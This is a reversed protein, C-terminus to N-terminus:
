RRQRSLCEPIPRVSIATRSLSIVADAYVMEGVRAFSVANATEPAIPASAPPRRTGAVPEKRDRANWGLSDSRTMDMATTPPIEDM